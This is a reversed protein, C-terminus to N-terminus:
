KKLRVNESFAMLSGPSIYPEIGGTVMRGGETLGRSLVPQPTPFQKFCDQGPPVLTPFILLLKENKYLVETRSKGM